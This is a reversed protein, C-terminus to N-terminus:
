GIVLSHGPRHARRQLLPNPPNPVFGNRTLPTKPALENTERVSGSTILPPIPENPIKGSRPAHDFAKKPFGRRYARSKGNMKNFSFSKGNKQRAHTRPKRRCHTPERGEVWIRSSFKSQM